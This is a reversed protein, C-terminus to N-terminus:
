NFEPKQKYHVGEMGIQKDMNQSEMKKLSMIIIISFNQNEM